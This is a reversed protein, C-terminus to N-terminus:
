VAVQAPSATAGTPRSAKIAAGRTPLFMFRRFRRKAALKANQTNPPATNQVEVKFSDALKACNAVGRKWCPNPTANKKRGSLWIISEPTGGRSKAEADPKLLKTRVMDPLM